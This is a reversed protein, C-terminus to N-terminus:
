STILNYGLGLAWSTEYGNIKKNINLVKTDPLGYGSSLLGYIFTLDVCYFDQGQDGEATPPRCAKQAERRFDGVTLLGGFGSLLGRELPKDYFYSFATISRGNLVEPLHVEAKKIVNQVLGFCEEFSSDGGSIEFATGHHSWSIPNSPKNRFCPSNAAKSKDGKLSQEVVARRATMLGLGLYSQSYVTVLHGLITVNHLSVSDGAMSRQESRKPVFTIQTSGGGLDLTAHSAIINDLSSLNDLLYNVTFWAFLGEDLPSMIEILNKEV